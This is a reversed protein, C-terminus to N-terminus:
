APAPRRSLARENQRFGCIRVPDKFRGYRGGTVYAAGNTHIDRGQLLHQSGFSLCAEKSWSASGGRHHARIPGRSPTGRLHAFRPM